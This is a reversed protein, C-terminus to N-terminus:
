LRNKSFRDAKGAEPEETDKGVAKLIPEGEHTLMEMDDSFKMEDWVRIHDSPNPPM